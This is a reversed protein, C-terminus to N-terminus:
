AEGAVWDMDGTWGIGFEEAAAALRKDRTWLSAASLKSAALLLMDNWQLGRGALGRREIMMLVERWDAEHMLFHMM